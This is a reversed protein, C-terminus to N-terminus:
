IWDSFLITQSSHPVSDASVGLEANAHDQEQVMFGAMSVDQLPSIRRHVSRFLRPAIRNPKIAHRM